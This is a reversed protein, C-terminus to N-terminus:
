QALLSRAYELFGVEANYEQLRREIEEHNGNEIQLLIGNLDM